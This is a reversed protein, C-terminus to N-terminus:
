SRSFRATGFQVRWQETGDPGYRFVYVDGEGQQNEALDGDTGGVVLVGGDGTAAIEYIYETSATGFQAGWLRTQMWARYADAPQTTQGWLMGAPM